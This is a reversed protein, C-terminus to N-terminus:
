PTYPIDLSWKEKYILSKEVSYRLRGSKDFFNYTTKGLPKVDKVTVATGPLFEVGPFHTPEILSTQDLFAFDGHAKITVEAPDCLVYFIYDNTNKKTFSAVFTGPVLQTYAKITYDGEELKAILPDTETAFGYDQGNVEVSASEGAKFKGDVIVFLSKHTTKECSFSQSFLFSIAIVLGIWLNGIRKFENM